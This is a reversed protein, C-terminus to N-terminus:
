LNFKTKPAEGKVPIMLSCSLISTM